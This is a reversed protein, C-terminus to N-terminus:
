AIRILLCGSFDTDAVDNIDMQGIRYERDPMGKITILDNIGKSFGMDKLENESIVQVCYRGDDNYETTNILCFMKECTGEIIKAM